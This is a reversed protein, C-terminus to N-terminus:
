SVDERPLLLDELFFASFSARGSLSSKKYIGLSQQRVTRESTRRIDAIEKFGLGKLMYLGVVKETPSFKWRNFQTDIASGLGKLCSEAEKQWKEMAERSDGLDKALNRNEKKVKLFYYFQVLTMSMIGVLLLAEVSLHIFSSGEHIDLALDTAAIVAVFFMLLQILYKDAILHIPRLDNSM